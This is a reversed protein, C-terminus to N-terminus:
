IRSIHGGLGPDNTSSAECDKIFLNAESPTVMKSGAPIEGLGGTADMIDYSEPGSRM